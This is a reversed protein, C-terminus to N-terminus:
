ERVDLQALQLATQVIDDRGGAGNELRNWRYQLSGSILVM